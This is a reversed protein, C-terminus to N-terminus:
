MRPPSTFPPQNPISDLSKLSAGWDLKYSFVERAYAKHDLSATDRVKQYTMGCPHFLQHERSISILHQADQM